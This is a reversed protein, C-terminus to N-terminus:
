CARSKLPLLAVSRENFPQAVRKLSLAPLAPAAAGAICLTRPLLARESRPAVSGENRRRNKLTLAIAKVRKWSFAQRAYLTVCKEEKQRRGNIKRGGEEKRKRKKEKKKTKREGEAM